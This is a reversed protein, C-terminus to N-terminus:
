EAILTSHDRACGITVTAGVAPDVGEGTATVVKLEDGSAIRVIHERAAGLFVRRVVVGSWVNDAASADFHLHEPRIVCIGSGSKNRMAEPSQAVNLFLPPVSVQVRGEKEVITGRLINAEGLFGAVFTNAPMSYLDQPTGVQLVEGARLVAIRDATALADTQDHTVVIMTQNLRRQIEKIEERVEGRLRADLNSFPEDLLIVQPSLALARALAVRQQQGGSLQHPYRKEYGAMQVTELAQVVANQIEKRTTNRLELGFSLNEGVTMHPWLAYQQFVVGMQREHAATSVIDRGEIKISGSDAAELGAIIRLLTTKGCGSPGLLFFLEGQEIHLSVNQLAKVSDFTKSVSVIELYSM